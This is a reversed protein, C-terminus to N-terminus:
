LLLKAFEVRLGDVDPVVKLKPEIMQHASPDVGDYDTIRLLLGDDVPTVSLKFHPAPNGYESM